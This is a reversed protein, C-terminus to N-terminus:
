ALTFFTETSSVTIISYNLANHASRWYSLRYRCLSDICPNHTRIGADALMLEKRHKVFTVTVNTKWWHALLRHPFAALQKYLISHQTSTHSLWSVCSYTFQGGHYSQLLTSFPTLGWDVLWGLSCVSYNVSETMCIRKQYTGSIRGALFGVNYISM